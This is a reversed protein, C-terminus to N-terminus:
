KFQFRAQHTSGDALQLVLQRCTGSWSKDTKWVYTYAETSANYSLTASGPSVTAELTASVSSADCSTGESAPYGSALISLGQDGGLTFTIPIASGAKVLNLVPPAAVPPLFGGFAFAILPVFSFDDYFATTTPRWVPGFVSIDVADFSYDGTASFTQQGDISFTTANSGVSIELLHWGLTRAVGTTSAQPYVGCNANPGRRTGLGDDLFATYCFADFDQTGISANLGPIGSNTLSVLEYLTEQGPASDYFYVAFLGKTPSSFDHHLRMARQGGSTAAFALSQAGSHAYLPSFGITGFDQKTANWFPDLSAGEFSDAFGSQALLQSASPRQGTSMTPAAPTTGDSCAAIFFSLVVIPVTRPRM